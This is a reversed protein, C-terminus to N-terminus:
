HKLPVGCLCCQPFTSGVISSCVGHVCVAYGVWLRAISRMGSTALFSALCKYYITDEQALSGTAALVIPIFSAHEVEPDEAWLGQM